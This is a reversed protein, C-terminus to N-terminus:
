KKMQNRYERPSAHYREQFVRNFTRQSEFGAQICIDLVTHNSHLLLNCAYDLRAENLYRNFNMHFTGSFVRSLSSQSIGLDHAMKPLTLEETYHAAIYSVTQYIIDDSEVTSKDILHFLPFTRALIIQIFAQHLVHEQSLAPYVLMSRLAYNVDPHVDPAPIVPNAPCMQQLDKTYGSGLIPSALAYIAKCSNQNFVQYHHILEPFIIAFDGKEMHYLETGIGLELTGETVSVLEMSKHLHPSIHSSINESIELTEENEEYIPRM